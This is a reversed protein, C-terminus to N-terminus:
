VKWSWLQVNNQLLRVQLPRWKLEVPLRLWRSLLKLRKRLLNIVKKRFAFAEDPPVNAINSRLKDDTARTYIKSEPDYSSGDSKCIRGSKNKLNAEAKPIEKSM